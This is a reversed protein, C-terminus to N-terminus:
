TGLYWGFPFPYHAFTTDQRLKAISAELKVPPHALATGAGPLPTLNDSPVDRVTADQHPEQKTNQTARWQQFAQWERWLRPLAFLKSTGYLLTILLLGSLMIVAEM